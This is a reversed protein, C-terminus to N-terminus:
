AGCDYKRDTSLFGILNLASQMDGFEIGVQTERDIRSRLMRSRGYDICRVRDFIQLVIKLNLRFFCYKVKGYLEPAMFSM